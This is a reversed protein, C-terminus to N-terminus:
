AIGRVRVLDGFIVSELSQSTAVGAYRGGSRMAMTQLGACYEDFALTYRRRADDDFDLKLAAGTEADRLELEGTWPPVRDEDAWLQLLMLEHGYDTLYQLARECSQDDLFDSIIIVLGRQSYTGIFERVSALYDTAGSAQLASIGDM